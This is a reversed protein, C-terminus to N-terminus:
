ESKEIHIRACTELILSLPQAFVGFTQQDETTFPQGDQKNVLQAVAIVNGQRDPIPMCLISKTQYEPPQDIQPNFNPDAGADAVNAVKGSAAVRGTIGTGAPWSTQVVGHDDRPLWSRLVGAADVLYITARGARLVRELRAAIVNLVDASLEATTGQNAFDMTELLLRFQETTEELFQAFQQDSMAEIQNQLEGTQRLQSFAQFLNGTSSVLGSTFSTLQGDELTLIRDAVDLIRNDHTVMVVACGQKKALDHLITVVERGAQKDLAATPEDALIIKPQRVLARATAVRQNQGGSLQSPYHDIREGLGVAKLMAVSQSRMQQDSMGPEVKLAMQVNQAATLSKLLNHAQFIFGIGRRVKTLLEPTAAKLEQELTRVSGEEVSRLGGILTLFTTKGSGSPGTVIVLEGPLIEANIDHLIQKRLSGSGFYHNLGQVAILPTMTTSM